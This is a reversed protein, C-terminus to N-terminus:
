SNQRGESCYNNDALTLVRGNWGPLPHEHVPPPVGPWCVASARTYQKNEEGSSRRCARASCLSRAAQAEPWLRSGTAVFPHGPREVGRSVQELVELVSEPTCPEEPLNRLIGPPEIGTGHSTNESTEPDRESLLVGARRRLDRM